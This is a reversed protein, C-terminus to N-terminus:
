RRLYVAVLNLVQHVVQPDEIETPMTDIGRPSLELYFRRGTKPPNQANPDTSYDREDLAVVGNSNAPLGLNSRLRDLREEVDFVARDRVHVRLHRAYWGAGRPTDAALWEFRYCVDRWTEGEVVIAVNEAAVLSELRKNITTRVNILSGM